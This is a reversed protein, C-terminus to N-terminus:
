LFSANKAYQIQLNSLLSRYHKMSEETLFVEVQEILCSISDIATSARKLDKELEEGEKLQIGLYRLAKGSLIGIFVSLLDEIELNNINLAETDSM